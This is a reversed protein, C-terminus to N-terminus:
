LWWSLFLNSKDVTGLGENQNAWIIAAPVDAGFEDRLNASLEEPTWEKGDLTAIWHLRPLRSLERLAAPVDVRDSYVIPISRHETLRNFAWMRLRGPQDFVINGPEYDAIGAHPFEGTTTIWRRFPVKRVVPRATAPVRFDGDAYFCAHTIGSTVLNEWAASDDFRIFVKHITNM